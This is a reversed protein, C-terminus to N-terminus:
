KYKSAIYDTLFTLATMSDFDEYDSAQQYADELVSDLIDKSSDTLDAKGEIFDNINDREKKPINAPAFSDLADSIVLKDDTSLKVKSGKGKGKGKGSGSSISGGGSTWRGDSSRAQRPSYNLISDARKVSEEFVEKSSKM